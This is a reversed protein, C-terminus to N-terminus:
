GRRSGRRRGRLVEEEVVREDLGAAAHAEGHVRRGEGLLRGDDGRRRPLRVAERRHLHHLPRLPVLPQVVGAPLQLGAAVGLALLVDGAPEAERLAGVALSPATWRQPEDLVRRARPVGRVVDDPRRGM